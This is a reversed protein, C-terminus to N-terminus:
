KNKFEEVLEEVRPYWGPVTYFMRIAAVEVPFARFLNYLNVSDASNILNCFGTWFGGFKGMQWRYAIEEEPELFPYLRDKLSETDYHGAISEARSKIDEAMFFDALTKSNKM